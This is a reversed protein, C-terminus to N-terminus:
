MFSSDSFSSPALEEEFTSLFLLSTEFSFRELFCLCLFCEDLDLDFSLFFCLFRFCLDLDLVRDSVRELDLDRELSPSCEALGDLLRETEDFERDFDGSTISCSSKTKSFSTVTPASPVFSLDSM